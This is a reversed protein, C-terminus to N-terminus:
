CELTAESRSGPRSGRFPHGGEKPNGPRIARFVWDPWSPIFVDRYFARLVDKGRGGTNVPMHNVYADEVMTALSAEVDKIEFEGKLHELWVEELREAHVIVNAM